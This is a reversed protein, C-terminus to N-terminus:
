FRADAAEAASDGGAALFAFALARPAFSTGDPGAMSGLIM